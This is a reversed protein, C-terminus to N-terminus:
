NLTANWEEQDRCNSRLASSTTSPGTAFKGPRGLWWWTRRQTELVTHERWCLDCCPQPQFPRRPAWIWCPEQLLGWRHRHEQLWGTSKQSTQNEMPKAIRKPLHWQKSLQQKKTSSHDSQTCCLSHLFRAFPSVPLQCGNVGLIGCIVMCVASGQNQGHEPKEKLSEQKTQLDM